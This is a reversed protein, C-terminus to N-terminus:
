GGRFRRAEVRSIEWFAASTWRSMPSGPVFRISLHQPPPQQMATVFFSLSLKSRTGRGSL